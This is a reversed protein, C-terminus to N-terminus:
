NNKILKYTRRKGEILTEIFYLGGPYNSIDFQDIYKGVEKQENDITALKNGLADFLNIQVLSPTGLGYALVFSGETPNPYVAVDSINQWNYSM